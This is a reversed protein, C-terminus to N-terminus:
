RNREYYALIKWGTPLQERCAAEAINLWRTRRRESIFIRAWWRLRISVFVRNTNTDAKLRVKEFGRTVSLAAGMINYSVMQAMDSPAGIGLMMGDVISNLDNSLGSM